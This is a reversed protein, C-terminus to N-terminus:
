EKIFDISLDDPEGSLLYPMIEEQTKGTMSLKEENTNKENKLNSQTNNKPKLYSDSMKEV